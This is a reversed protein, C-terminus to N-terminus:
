FLESEGGAGEKRKRGTGEKGDEGERKRERREEGVGKVREV